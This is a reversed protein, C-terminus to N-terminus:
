GKLTGTTFDIDTLQYDKGAGLILKHSALKIQLAEKTGQFTVNDETRRFQKTFKGDVIIQQSGYVISKGM